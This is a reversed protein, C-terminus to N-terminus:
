DFLKCWAVGGTGLLAGTWTSMTAFPLRPMATDEIAGANIYKRDVSWRITDFGPTLTWSEAVRLGPAGYEIGSITVTQGERKVKAPKEAQASTYWQGGVKIGSWIGDDTAQVQRGRISLNRLVCGHSSDIEFQIEGKTDLSTVIQPEQRGMHHSALIALALNVLMSADM